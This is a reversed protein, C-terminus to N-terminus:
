LEIDEEGKDGQAEGAGLLGQLWSHHKEQQAKMEEDAEKLFEAESMQLKAMHEAQKKHFKELQYQFFRHKEAREYEAKQWNSFSKMQWKKFQERQFSLAKTDNLNSELPNWVPGEPETDAAAAGGAAGYDYDAM